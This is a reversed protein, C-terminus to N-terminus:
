RRFRGKSFLFRISAITLTNKAIGSIIAKITKFKLPFGYLRPDNSKSITPDISLVADNGMFRATLADPAQFDVKAALHFEEIGRSDISVFRLQKTRMPTRGDIWPLEMRFTIPQGDGDSAVQMDSHYEENPFVDNGMRYITTRASVHGGLFVRGLFSRCGCVVNLGTGEYRTWSEFRLQENAQYVYVTGQPDGTFQYTSHDIPNQVMFPQIPQVTPLGARWIPEILSSLFKSDINGSFLNRKASSMGDYSAFRLDNEITAICRHNILGFQPMEDVFDPTHRPPEAQDYNGLQIILSQSRFFVILFHRYGAIGLIEPAGTPAFAGVDISIADNPLPDSPFTGSTGKSSIYVTTPELTPTMIGAVCHYNAAICGYKGIPVNVNSGTADDALYKVAYASNIIIPKNNGSHIILNSKWPVFDVQTVPNWPGAPPLLAAAIAANWIVAPVGFGDVSAIEGSTMVVILRNNFYEMDLITGAVVPAVDSFRKTGWRLKQAGSPTRRFNLLDPQFKAEMNTDEDVVNWGGGFGRLVIEELRSKPLKKPSTSFLSVNM